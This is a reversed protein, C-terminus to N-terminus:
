FEPPFEGADVDPRDPESEPESETPEDDISLRPERRYVVASLEFGNESAAKTASPGVPYPLAFQVGFKHLDAFRVLGEVLKRGVPTDRFSPLTVLWDGTLTLEKAYRPASPVAGISGVIRGSLVAVSVFGTEIVTLVHALRAAEDFPVGIGARKEEDVLLRYLNVADLSKARRIRLRTETNM